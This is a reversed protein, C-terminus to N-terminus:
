ATLTCFLVLVVYSVVILDASVINFLVSTCDCSIHLIQYPCCLLKQWFVLGGKDSAEHWHFHILQVLM